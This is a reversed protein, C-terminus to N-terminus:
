FDGGGLIKRAEEVDEGIRAALDEPGAFAREERIREVIELLLRRGRLEGCFDPLHVEVVPNGAGFTPRVGYNMVGPRPADGCDLIRVLVAYVGFGPLLKRENGVDVNATPFELTRGVGRGSVVTGEVLYPHGLLEAAERVRGKEIQARIRSSSIPEGGALTPPVRVVRFGLEQGVARLEEIGGSRDKGMRFDWGEVLACLRARKPVLRELFAAPALGATERDFPYVLVADPGVRELLHVREEATTLVPPLADPRLVELPHPDLTVVLSSAGEALAERHLADFVARHGRHVGDFVGVSVALPGELDLEEVRRAVIM